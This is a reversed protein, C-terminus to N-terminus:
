FPYSNQIIPKLSKRWYTNRLDRSYIVSAQFINIVLVSVEQKQPTEVRTFFISKMLIIIFQYMSDIICINRDNDGFM